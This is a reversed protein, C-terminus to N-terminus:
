IIYIYTHCTKRSSTMLPENSRTSAGQKTYIYYLYRMYLIACYQIIHWMNYLSDNQLTTLVPTKPNREWKCIQASYDNMHNILSIFMASERTHQVDDSILHSEAVGSIMHTIAIFTCHATQQVLIITFHSYM